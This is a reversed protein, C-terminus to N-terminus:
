GGLAQVHPEIIAMIEAPSVAAGRGIYAMLVRTYLDQRVASLHPQEQPPPSPQIPAQAAAAAKAEDEAIQKKTRRKRKKPEPAAEAQPGPEPMTSPPTAEPPNVEDLLARLRLQRAQLTAAFCDAHFVAGNPLEPFLPHALHQRPSPSNADGCVVCAESPILVTAGRLLEYQEPTYEDQPPLAPVPVPQPVQPAVQQPVLVPAQPQVMASQQVLAPVQPAPPAAAIQPEPLPAAPIAAQPQTTQALQALIGGQQGFTGMRIEEQFQPWQEHCVKKFECGGFAKCSEPPCAETDEIRLGRAEAIAHAKQVFADWAPGTHEATLRAQVKRSGRGGKTQMYIWLTDVYPWDWETIAHHAYITAQWDRYLDMETMAYRAVNSSSKWDQIVYLVAWVVDIKGFFV